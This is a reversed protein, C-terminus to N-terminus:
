GLAQSVPESTFLVQQMTGNGTAGNQAVTVTYQNGAPYALTPDLCICQAGQGTSSANVVTTVPGGIVAGALGSGQRIRMTVSGVGAGTTVLVGAELYVGEGGPNAEPPITFTGVATEATTTLVTATNNQQVSKNTM